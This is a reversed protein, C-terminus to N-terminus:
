QRSATQDSKVNPKEKEFRDLCTKEFRRSWQRIVDQSVNARTAIDDTDGEFGRAGDRDIRTARYELIANRRHEPYHDLVDRAIHRMLTRQEANVILADMDISDLTELTTTHEADNDGFTEHETGYRHRRLAKRREDIWLHYCLKAMWAKFQRTVIEDNDSRPEFSDLKGEIKEVAKALLEAEDFQIDSTNQAFRTALRYLFDLIQQQEAAHRM